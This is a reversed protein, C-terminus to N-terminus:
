DRKFWTLRELCATKVIVATHHWMQSPPAVPTISLGANSYNGGETTVRDTIKEANSCSYRWCHRELSGPARNKFALSFMLTENEGLMRAASSATLAAGTLNIWTMRLSLNTRYRLRAAQDMSRRETVNRQKMESETCKVGTHEASCRNAREWDHQNYRYIHM